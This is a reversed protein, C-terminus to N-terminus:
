RVPKRRLAFGILGSGLLMLSSPEPAAVPPVGPVNDGATTGFSFEVGSIDTADTVGAISLVFHGTSQVFPNHPSNGAISSNANPYSTDGVSGGIITHEPTFSGGLGNLHYTGGSNALDWGIQDPGPVTAATANGSGDVDVFSASSSSVSGPSTTTDLTFFLDSINQGVSKVQAATLLNTLDITVTGAGTTITASAAVADGSSSTAGLATSESITDAFTNVSFCFIGVLLLIALKKSM